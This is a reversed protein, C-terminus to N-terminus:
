VNRALCIKIFNYFISFYIKHFHIELQHKVSSVRLTPIIKVVQVADILAKTAALYEIQHGITNEKTVIFVNAKQKRGDLENAIAKPQFNIEEYIQRMAPNELLEIENRIVALRLHLRM